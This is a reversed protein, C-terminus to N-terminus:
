EWKKLMRGIRFFRTYDNGDVAAINSLVNFTHHRLGYHKNRDPIIRKSLIEKFKGTEDLSLEYIIISSGYEGECSQAPRYLKSDSSFIQGAGREEKLPNEIIQFLEYEGLLGNSIYIQLKKSSCYNTGTFRTGFLYYYEGIKTIQCDVLEENLIVVPGKLIKSVPDLTYISVSGSEHNEPCIYIQSDEKIIYPFSLHTDKELITTNNKLFYNNRKKECTLMALRGKATKRVWEEALIVVEDNNVSLIFPDAYWYKRYDLGKIWKIDKFKFAYDEYSGLVNFLGIYYSRDKIFFLVKKYFFGVAKQIFINNQLLRGIKRCRGLKNIVQDTKSWWSLQFHHVCQTNTSYNTKGGCYPVPSFFDSKFLQIISSDINPDFDTISSIEKVEIGDRQILMNMLDPIPIPSAGEAMDFSSHQYYDILSKFLPLGKEAGMVAAEILHTGSEYGLFYPLHLLNDFSKLVEVDSDLYIGGYYYLAYCRIYDAAFAYRGAEFAKKVWQCSEIDFRNLDWLIIEYDPLIKKWSAICKKVLKPYPDGSLWCFHIIKPIM